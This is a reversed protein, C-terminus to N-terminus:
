FSLEGMDHDLREMVDGTPYKGQFTHGMDLVRRFVDTRVRWQYLENIRGRAFPLLVEALVRFVGLVVLLVVYRILQAQTAGQRIADIILRLMYPFSLTLATGVLMGAILAVAWWPRQKWFDLVIRLSALRAKRSGAEPNQGSVKDGM